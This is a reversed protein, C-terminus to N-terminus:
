TCNIRVVSLGADAQRVSVLVTRLDSDTSGHRRQDRGQWYKGNAARFSVSAVAALSATEETVASWGATRFM